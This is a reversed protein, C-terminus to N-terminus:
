ITFMRLAPGAGRTQKIDTAELREQNASGKMSELLAICKFRSVVPKSERAKRCMKCTAQPDKHASFWLRNETARAASEQTDREEQQDKCM